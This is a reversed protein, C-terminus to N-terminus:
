PSLLRPGTKTHAEVPTSAEILTSAEIPTSAEAEVEVTVV